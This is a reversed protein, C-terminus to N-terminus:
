PDYFAGNLFQIKLSEFPKFVTEGVTQEWHPGMVTPLLPGALKRRRAGDKASKSKKEREAVKRREVDNASEMVLVEGDGDVDMPIPAGDEECGPM